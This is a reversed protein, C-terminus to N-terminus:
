DVPHKLRIGLSERSDIGWELKGRSIALERMREDQSLAKLKVVVQGIDPDRGVLMTAFSSGGM